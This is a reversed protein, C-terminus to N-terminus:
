GLGVWDWGVGCGVLGLGVWMVVYGVGGWMVVILKIFPGLGVWGWIVKYKIYKAVNGDTPM